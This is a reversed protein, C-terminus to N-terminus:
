SYAELYMTFTTSALVPNSSFSLLFRTNTGSIVAGNGNSGSPVANSFSFVGTQVENQAAVPFDGAGRTILLNQANAQTQNTGSNVYVTAPTDAPGQRTQALITLIPLAPRGGPSSDVVRVTMTYRNCGRLDLYPTAAVYYGGFSSAIVSANIGLEAPTFFRYITGGIIQLTGATAAQAATILPLADLQNQPIFGTAM